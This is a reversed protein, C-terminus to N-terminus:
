KVHVMLLMYYLRNKVGPFVKKVQSWPHWVEECIQRMHKYEWKSREINCLKLARAKPGRRWVWRWLKTVLTVFPNHIGLLEHGKTKRLSCVWGDLQKSSSGRPHRFFVELRVHRSGFKWYAVFWVTFLRIFLYIFLTCARNITRWMEVSSLM